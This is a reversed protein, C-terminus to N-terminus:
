CHSKYACHGCRCNVPEGLIDVPYKLDIYTMYGIRFIGISFFLGWIAGLGSVRKIQGSIPWM